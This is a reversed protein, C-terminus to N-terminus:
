ATPHINVRTCPKLVGRANGSFKEHNAKEGVGMLEVRPDSFVFIGLSVNRATKPLPLACPRNSSDILSQASTPTGVLTV